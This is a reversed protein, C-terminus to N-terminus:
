SHDVDRLEDYFKSFSDSLAGKMYTMAAQPHKNLMGTIAYPIEYGWILEERLKLFYRQILDLVPRVDYRPNHLFGLLLELCCNGAARGMGFISADLYTIGKYVGECTNSFALQQNNHCHIGIQKGPLAALYKEALYHVQHAGMYGFSDVLYVVDFDTGALQAIAQDLEPELAHSVAMINIAVEYGKDKIQKGLIIAKQIDKVYTAVRYMAVISQDAPPISEQDTRGVDVMVAIKTDCAFAVDRLDEEDCFRWPGYESPSYQNKDARYGLEVYDVGAKVLGAFVDRVMERDFFWDNMLGGDRITCDIVKIEPRFM